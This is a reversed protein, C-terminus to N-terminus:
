LNDKRSDIFVTVPGDNVLHVQMHAAFRGSAVRIGEESLMAVMDLYMRKARGPEEANEFSPRNGKRCDAALTFQSVVLISGCAEVVSLNMKGNTDEFIRLNSIKKAMYELDKEADGKLVCLFVVLGKGIRGVVVGEAVVGAESVRQLLARM